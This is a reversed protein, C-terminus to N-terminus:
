KQPRYISFKGKTVDKVKFPHTTVKKGSHKTNQDAIMFDGKEKVSYIIATHHTLTETYFVDEISYTLIVGEFQVIDGPFICAKKPDVEKGFNYKGDWKAGVKNLAEAAIDWCEGMGVKKNMNTNVFEIVKKNLEPTDGCPKNTKFSFMGVCAMMVIFFNIKKM